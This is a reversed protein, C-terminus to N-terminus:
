RAVEMAELHALLQRGVERTYAAPIAQALGKADMWPTEFMARAESITAKVSRPGAKRRTNRLDGYVGLAPRVGNACDCPPLTLPFSALFLRHRALQPIGLARGCAVQAGDMVALTSPSVVNEVVWPLSQARLAVITQVLLDATGHPNVNAHGQLTTHDTCPPSAHWASVGPHPCALVMLADAQVATGPYRPQPVNDVGMVRFGAQVYGATAGGQGCYLDVLLPAPPWGTM